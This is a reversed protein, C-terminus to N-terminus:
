QQGHQRDRASEEEASDHRVKVSASLVDRCPWILRNTSARTCFQMKNVASDLRDVPEVVRLRGEPKQSASTRVDSIM